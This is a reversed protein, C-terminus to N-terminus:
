LAADAVEGPDMMVGFRRARDMDVVTPDYLGTDTAGPALTTVTVGYPALESRLAAAFTRLYTKTGGYYAIGPFARWASISSTLMIRGRRRARMDRAFLTCLLSPTVVHLQLMVNAKAPEADAVEGFFFMGANVVLVDVDVGLACVAAHLEGASEPRALDCVVPHVLTGHAVFIEGAIADLRERNESVLVLAYDGRAALRRAIERGIGSCAGTVVACLPPAM